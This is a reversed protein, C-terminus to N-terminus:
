DIVRYSPVTPPAILHESPAAPQARSARLRLRLHARRKHVTVAIVAADAAAGAFGALALLLDPGAMSAWVGVALNCALWFAWGSLSIGRTGTLGRWARRLAPARHMLRLLNFALFAASTLSLM